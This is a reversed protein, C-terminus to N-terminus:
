REVAAGELHLEHLALRPRGHHLHRVAVGHVAGDGVEVVVEHEPLLEIDPLDPGPHPRLPHGQAAGASGRGGGAADGLLLGDHGPLGVPQLVSGTAVLVEAAGAVVAEGGGLLRGLVPDLVGAVDEVEEVRGQLHGLVVEVLYRRPGRREEERRERGEEEKEKSSGKRSKKKRRRGEEKEKKRRAAEKEKKKEKEKEERRGKGERRKVKRGERQKREKKRKRERRKM